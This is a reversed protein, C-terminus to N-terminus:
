MTEGDRWAVRGTEGDDDESCKRCLSIRAFSNKLKQSLNRGPWQRRNPLSKLEAGTVILQSGDAPVGRM